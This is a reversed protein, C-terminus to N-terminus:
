SNEDACNMRQQVICLYPLSFHPLSDIVLQSPSDPPITSAKRINMWIMVNFRKGQYMSSPSLLNRYKFSSSYANPDKEM